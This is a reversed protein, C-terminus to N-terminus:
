TQAAARAAPSPVVTLGPGFSAAARVKQPAMAARQCAGALAQDFESLLLNVDVMLSTHKRRSLWFLGEFAGDPTRLHLELTWLQGNAKLPQGFELERRWTHTLESPYFRSSSPRLHLSFGDFDNHCFIEELVITLEDFSSCGALKQTGRRIALNNVMIHKQEFTRRALRGLEHFEQYDLRQVGIIIGAGVIILVLAISSTGPSLLLLSLLGFLASISYLAVVAQKQTWGLDLLKHHIHERDANFVPRGNILRRVMTVCTEVIPLGFAIVPISVAIVTSSKEQEVGTLALGALFTGIFLSGCDGLFISAPNFNYRLFGLIAGALIVTLLETMRNGNSLAVLFMTLSAFLASGAALGDLGDILNFANSVLLVWIVTLVASTFEGFQRSGFLAAFHMIRIHASFLLLGAAVQAAIKMWPRIDFVDDLLGSAFTLTAAATIFLLQHLSYGIGLRMSHAALIALGGTASVTAFIAMGGLRPISGKHLHRESAPAKVWGRSRALNRFAWTLVTGVLAATFFSILLLYVM